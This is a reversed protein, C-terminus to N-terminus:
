VFVLSVVAGALMAPGFPVRDSPGARRALLLGVAYLGGFVFALVTGWLVNWASVFGLAAGLLGALRVDGLGLAGRSALRLLHYLGWLSLSGIAMGLFRRPEGSLLAAVGLLLVTCVWAPRVVAGPLRHDRFDVYVLWACLVALGTLTLLVCFAAALSGFDGASAHRTLYEGM